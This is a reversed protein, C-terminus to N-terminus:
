WITDTEKDNIKQALAVKLSRMPSLAYFVKNSYKARGKSYKIKYTYPTTRRVLTKEKRADESEQWYQLTRKWDVPHTVKLKGEKLYAVNKTKSLELCGMGAPLSVRKGQLVQLALEENMGRVIAYFQKETVRFGTDEWKRKRLEKYADYVGWSNRVKCQGM